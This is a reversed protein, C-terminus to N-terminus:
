QLCPIIRVHVVVDVGEVVDGAFFGDRLVPLTARLRLREGCLLQFVLGIQIAELPETLLERLSSGVM